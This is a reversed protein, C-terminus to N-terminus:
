EKAILINIADKENDTTHIKYLVGGDSFEYIIFKDPKSFFLKRRGCSIRICPIAKLAESITTIMEATKGYRKGKSIIM